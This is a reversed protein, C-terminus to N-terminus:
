GSLTRQATVAAIAQRVTTVIGAPITVPGSLVGEEIKRQKWPTGDEHDGVQRPGFFGFPWVHEPSAMAWLHTQNAGDVLRGEAPFMEVAECEPGVLESKIKQLHRWDRAPEQDLRKISLHVMRLDDGLTHRANRNVLVSYADNEWKETFEPQAATVRPGVPVQCLPLWGMTFTAPLAARERKIRSARGM